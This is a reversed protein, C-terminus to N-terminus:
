RVYVELRPLWEGGVGTSFSAGHGEGAKGLVALGHSRGPNQQAERVLETVDIRLPARGHAQGRARPPGLTPQSSWDFDGPTWARRVRWVEVDVPATDFAGATEPELRLYAREINQGPLDLEAFRLYLATKGAAAGGFTVSRPLADGRREASIVAMAVPEAVTRQWAPDIDCTLDAPDACRPPASACSLLAVPILALLALLL